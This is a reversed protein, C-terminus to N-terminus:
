TVKHEYFAGGPAAQYSRRAAERDNAVYDKRRLEPSEDDDDDDESSSSSSSSSSRMPKQLSTMSQQTSAQLMFKSHLLDNRLNVSQNLSM